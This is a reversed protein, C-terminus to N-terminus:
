KKYNPCLHKKIMYPTIAKLTQGTNPHLSIATFYEYEGNISKGYWLNSHGNEKFFPYDCGPTVKKFNNLLKTDIPITNIVECTEKEYHDNTWIMCNQKISNIGFYSTIVILSSIAAKGKNASFRSKLSRKENKLTYDKLNDYGLYKCLADFTYTSINHKKTNNKVDTYYNRITRENLQLNHQIELTNSIHTALPTTDKLGSEEKAKEFARIILKKHM